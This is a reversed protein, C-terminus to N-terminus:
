GGVGDGRGIGGVEGDRRVQDDSGIDVETEGFWGEWDDWVCGRGDKPTVRSRPNHGHRM